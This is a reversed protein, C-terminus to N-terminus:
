PSASEARDLAAGARELYDDPFTWIPSGPARTLGPEQPAMLRVDHGHKSLERAWHHAGGCAEMGILCAPTNALERLLASRSLKKKIVRRGDEDVGWLHFSNKGLDIGLRVVPKSSNM